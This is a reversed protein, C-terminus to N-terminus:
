STIRVGENHISHLKNQGGPGNSYAGIIELNFPYANDGIAKM